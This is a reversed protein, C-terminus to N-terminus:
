LEMSRGWVVCFLFQMNKCLVIYSLKYNWLVDEYMVFCFSCIKACYSIIQSITESFTRMCWLVFVAYKQVIRYLTAQLEISRGWLGCFLFQMSKCLAIYHLKCNWLVDGYVVFCFGCIKACYSIIQSITEYFTGMSWLVFVAYKQM